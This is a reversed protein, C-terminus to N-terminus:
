FGQYVFPAANETEFSLTILFLASALSAARALRPWRMFALEDDRQAFDIMLALGVVGIAVILRITYRIEFGFNFLAQWFNLAVTLEARFPVWALAVLIFTVAIGLFQRWRPLVQTPRVPRRMVMIREVIQYIAHLLGWVVMQPVLGHWLGSVLMTVLPPIIVNAAASRDRNRRLLARLLPFYIYDRLWHSLSIHWRNWFETFSHALYPLAFNRPLEIGFLSSVGRVISTYGAFDNYLYFSYVVLWGLLEVAVFNKPLVFLDAPLFLVLTDAIVLKRLLGIIILGFSFTLSEANIPRRHSLRSMFEDARVIPGALLKPFYAIYIAFDLLRSTPVIRGSRVDLLYSINELVYYSLGVPVLINLAPGPSVALLNALQAVFFGADRLFLLAGVNVGIGLWLYRKHHLARALTFNFVTLLFMTLAFEWAWSICFAYSVLLLWLNRWNKPICYHVAVSLILFSAFALSTIPM